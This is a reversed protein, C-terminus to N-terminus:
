PYLTKGRGTGDPSRIISQYATIFPPGKDRQKDSLISDGDNVKLAKGQLQEMKWHGFLTKNKAGLMVTDANAITLPVKYQGTTCWHGFNGSIATVRQKIRNTVYLKIQFGIDNGNISIGWAEKGISRVKVMDGKVLGLKEADAPNMWLENEPM